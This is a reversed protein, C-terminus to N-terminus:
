HAVLTAVQQATASAVMIHLTIISEDDLPTCFSLVFNTSKTQSFHLFSLSLFLQM